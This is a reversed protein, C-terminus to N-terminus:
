LNNEYEKDGMEEDGHKQLWELLKEACNGRVYCDGGFLPCEDCSLATVALSSLSSDTWKTEAIIKKLNEVFQERNTM